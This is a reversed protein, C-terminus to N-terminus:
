RKIGTEDELKSVMNSYVRRTSRIIDLVYNTLHIPETEFEVIGQLVLGLFNTKETDLHIYVTIGDQVVAFDFHYVYRSGLNAFKFDKNVMERTHRAIVNATKEDIEKELTFSMSQIKVKQTKSLISVYKSSEDSFHNLLDTYEKEEPIDSNLLAFTSKQTGFTIGYTTKDYKLTLNYGGITVGIFNVPMDMRLIDVVNDYKVPEYEIELGLLM